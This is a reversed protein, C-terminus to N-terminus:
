TAGGAFYSILVTMLLLTPALVILGVISGITGLEIWSPPRGAAVRRFHMQCYKGYGWWAALYMPVALLVAFPGILGNAAAQLAVLMLFFFSSFFDVTLGHLMGFHERYRQVSRELCFAQVGPLVLLPLVGFSPVLIVVFTATLGVGLLLWYRPSPAQELIEDAHRSAYTELKGDAGIRLPLHCHGCESSRRLAMAFGFSEACHPCNAM